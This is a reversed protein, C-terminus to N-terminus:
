EMFDHFPQLGRTSFYPADDQRFGREFAHWRAAAATPHTAGATSFTCGVSELLTYAGYLSHLADSGVVVALGSRPSSITYGEGGRAPAPAPAAGVGLLAAEAATAVLVARRAPLADLAAAGDIEALAPRAGGGEVLGIYRRLEAAALRTHRHAGPLIAVVFDSPAPAAAAAAASASAVAVGLLFIFIIRTPMNYSSNTTIIRSVSGVM